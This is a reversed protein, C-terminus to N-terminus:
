RSRARTVATVAATLSAYASENLHVLDDHRNCRTGSACGLARDTDILDVGADAIASNLMRRAVFSSRTENPAPPIGLVHLKAEPWTDRIREIVADIGPM